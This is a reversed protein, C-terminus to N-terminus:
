NLELDGVPLPKTGCALVARVPPTSVAHYRSPGRQHSLKTSLADYHESTGTNRRGEGQLGGTEDRDHFSAEVGSEAARDDHHRSKKGKEDNARIQTRTLLNRAQFGDAGGALTLPHQTAPPLGHKVFMLALATEGVEPEAPIELTNLVCADAVIDITTVVEDRLGM